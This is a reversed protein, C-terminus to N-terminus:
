AKGQKKWLDQPFSAYQYNYGKTEPSEACEAQGKLLSRLKQRETYLRM